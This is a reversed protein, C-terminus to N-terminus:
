VKMMFSSNHKKIAVLHCKFSNVTNLIFGKERLKHINSCINLVNTSNSNQDLCVTQALLINIWNFLDTKM